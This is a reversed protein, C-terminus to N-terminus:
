ASSPGDAGHPASTANSQVDRTWTAVIQRQAAVYGPATVKLHQRLRRTLDPLKHFPVTPVAHHATHNPMNWALWNVLPATFTTRTNALMDPVLPCGTHEALLYARMFPQGLLSPLVWLWLPWTWGSAFALGALALYAALHCRAELVVRARGKEPIFPEPARGLACSALRTVEGRWRDIGTLVWLYSPWSVPKPSSLEPDHLPDQTHRHHAMHFYRFYRPPLLVLFGLCEAILLNLWSSRFATGHITEHLPTFLFVLLIGHVVLLGILAWTSATGMILWGTLALAALHSGLRVLGPLDSLEKLALLDADPLAALAERHTIDTM